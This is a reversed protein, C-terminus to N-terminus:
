NWIRFETTQDMVLIALKWDYDRIMALAQFLLDHGKQRALRGVIALRVTKERLLNAPSVALWPSLEIGNPIYFLRHAPIALPGKCYAMVAGSVAVVAQARQLMCRTLFQRVWSVAQGVNHQTSVWCIKKMLFSLLFAAVDASFVHSHITTPQFERAFTKLKKLTRWFGLVGAEGIMLPIQLAQFESLLEGGGVISGVAVDIGRARLARVYGLVLIEAGGTTLRPILYLIKQNM